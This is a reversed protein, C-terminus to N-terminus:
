NYAHRSKTTCLLLFFFGLFLNCLERLAFVRRHEENDRTQISNRDGLEQRSVM